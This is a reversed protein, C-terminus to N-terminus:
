NVARFGKTAANYKKNFSKESVKKGDVFFGYKKYHKSNRYEFKKIQSLKTGKVKYFRIIYGGTDGRPIEVQHKKTNYKLKMAYGKGYKVGKLKIRKRDSYRYTYVENELFGSGHIILEPIGNGDVDVIKYALEGDSVQRIYARYSARAAAAKNNAAFSPITASCLLMATLALCGLRKRYYTM